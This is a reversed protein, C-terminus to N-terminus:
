AQRPEIHAAAETLRQEVNAVPAHCFPKYCLAAGGLFMAAGTYAPALHTFDMYGILPHVGIATVFGSSGALVIAQWLSRSPRGCWVCFLMILGCTAIGGGFGARDHAILPVLRPNIAALERATLGIYRLDQPVFVNTMGIIGITLGALVLGAGTGLLLTRGIGFVTGTKPRAGPRLLTEAGAPQKLHRRSIVLGLIQTPLLFLTAVGHWSDLYGYGLYALFSGFGSIGSIVFVWWAWTEGARLPFQVLWLYLWGIAILAGGFAVRDHFMFHVIRCQNISCLQEKDMGLFHVDHPLFHGTASLFLAFSGCLMLCVAVLALLPRGDGVLSALLGLEYNTGTRVVIPM